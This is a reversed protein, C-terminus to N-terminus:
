RSLSCLSYKNNCQNCCIRLMINTSIDCFILLVYKGVIALEDSTQGQYECAYKGETASNATFSLREGNPTYCYQNGSATCDNDESVNIPVENRTFTAHNIPEMLNEDKSSCTLLIANAGWKSRSDTDEAQLVVNLALTDPLCLAFVVALLTTRSIPM